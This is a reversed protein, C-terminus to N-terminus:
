CTLIAGGVDGATVEERPHLYAPSDQLPGNWNESSVAYANHCEQEPCSWRHPPYHSPSLTPPLTVTVTHPATHHHCHPPCHSPSLTPPTPPPPYSLTPPLTITVTHPPPPPTHCHPPCHSPSLTCPPCHSSSRTPPLPLLLRTPPLTITVTHATAVTHPTVCMYGGGQSESSTDNEEHLEEDEEVDSPDEDVLPVSVSPSTM